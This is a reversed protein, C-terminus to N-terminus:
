LLNPQLKPKSKPKLFFSLALLVAAVALSAALLEIGPLFQQDIVPGDLGTVPDRVFRTVSTKTWGANAGLGAWALLSGLALVMSAM